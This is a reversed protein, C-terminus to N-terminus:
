PERGRPSTVGELLLLADEFNSPPAITQVGNRYLGAAISDGTRPDIWTARVAPAKTIRTLDLTAPAAASLYVMASGGATDKAAANQWLGTGPDDILISNDPSLNWWERATMIKKLVAMSQAGPADLASRWSGSGAFEGHSWIADHGYTYFGGGLYTWYAQKRVAWATDVPPYTACCNTDVWGGEYSGEGLVAPKTPQSRYMFGILFPIQDVWKYSEAMHFNLATEPVTYPNMSQDPTAGPSWRPWVATSSPHYGLLKAQTDSEQLGAALERYVPSKDYVATDGGLMWVVNAASKYRNGVYRGYARANAANVMTTGGTPAGSIFASGWVPLMGVVIGRQRAADVVADVNAFFTENPTAPDNNVFPIEGATNARCGPVEAPFCVVALVVSFGKAQRDDLYAAIESDTYSTFLQWPTDGLWFFPRGEGDVFYRGGPAVRLPESFSSVGSQASLLAAIATLFIAAPIVKRM